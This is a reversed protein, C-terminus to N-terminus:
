SKRLRSARHPRRSAPDPPFPFPAAEWSGESALRPPSDRARYARWAAFAVGAVVGFGLTRKIAARSLVKKVGDIRATASM